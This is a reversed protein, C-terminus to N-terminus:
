SRLLALRLSCLCGGLLADRHGLARCSSFSVLIISGDLQLARGAVFSVAALALALALVLPSPTLSPSPSYCGSACCLSYSAFSLLSCRAEVAAEGGGAEISVWHGNWCCRLCCCCCCVSCVSCASVVRFSHVVTWQAGSPPVSSTVESRNM